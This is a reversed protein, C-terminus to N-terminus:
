NFTTTNEKLLFRVVKQYFLQNLIEEDKLYAIEDEDKLTINEIKAIEEIIAKETLYTEAELKCHELLEEETTNNMTLYMEINANKSKLQKKFDELIIYKLNDIEEDKLEAKSNGIIENMIKNIVSTSEIILKDYYIKNKAYEKLDNINNVGNIKFGMVADDSLEPKVQEMKAIIGKKEVEVKYQERKHNLYENIEEDLVVVNPRKYGLKKYQGLKVTM